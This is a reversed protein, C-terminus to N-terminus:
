GVPTMVDRRKQVGVSNGQQLGGAGGAVRRSHGADLLTREVRSGSQADLRIAESYDRAARDYESKKLYVQARNAFAEGYGPNLTIAEDFAKIALDYEGKKLYAVGRNNFPKAYTRISSSRNISIRSPATTTARQSLPM